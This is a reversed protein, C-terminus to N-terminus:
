QTASAPRAPAGQGPAAELLHQGTDFVDGLLVVQIVGEQRSHQLALHLREVDEHIDALIGLKM